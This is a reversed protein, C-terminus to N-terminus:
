RLSLTAIRDVELPPDQGDDSANMSLLKRFLFSAYNHLQLSSNVGEM